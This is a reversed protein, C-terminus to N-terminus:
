ELLEMMEKVAKALGVTHSKSIIAQGIHVEELARARLVPDINLFSLGHGASVKLGNQVARKAAKYVRDLEMKAAEQSTARRYAGTHIEVFDAGCEEALDIMEADPEVCLAVLINHAHFSEASDRLTRVYTRSELQGARHAKLMEEAEIVVKHPRVTAALSMASGSLDVVVNLTGHIRERIAGLEQERISPRGTRVHFSIGDCGSRDCAVAAEVPDLRDGRQDGRPAVVGDLNVCLLHFRGQYYVGGGPM